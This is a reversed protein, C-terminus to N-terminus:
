VGKSIGTAESMRDIVNIGQNIYERIIEKEIFVRVNEVISKTKAVFKVGRGPMMRIVKKFILSSDKSSRSEKSNNSNEQGM